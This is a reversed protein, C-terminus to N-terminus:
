AFECELNTGDLLRVIIQTGEIVTMKEIMAFYLDVDFEVLPKKESLIRIFQKAKYRALVNDNERMREWKDIFYDKNEVMMNFV